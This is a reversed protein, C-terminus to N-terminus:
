KLACLLWHNKTYIARMMVVVPVSMTMKGIRQVKLLIDSYNRLTYTMGMMFQCMISQLSTNISESIGLWWGMGVAVRRHDRQREIRGALAHGGVKLEAQSSWKIASSWWTHLAKRDHRVMVNDKKRVMQAIHPSNIDRMMYTSQFNDLIITMRRTLHAKLDCWLRNQPLASIFM